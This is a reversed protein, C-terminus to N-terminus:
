KKSHNFNSDQIFWNRIFDGQLKEYHNQILIKIANLLFIQKKEYKSKSNDEKAENYKNFNIESCNFSKDVLSTRSEEYQRFLFSVYKEQRKTSYLLRLKEKKEDSVGNLLSKYLLETHMYTIDKLFGYVQKKDMGYIYSVHNILIRKKSIIDGKGFIIILNGILEFKKKEIDISSINNLLSYRENIMGDSNEPAEENKIINSNNKIDEFDPFRTRNREIVTNFHKLIKNPKKTTDKKNYKKVPNYKFICSKSLENFSNSDIEFLLSEEKRMKLLESYKSIFDIEKIYLSTALDELLVTFENQIDLNESSCKCGM